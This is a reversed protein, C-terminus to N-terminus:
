GALVLHAKDFAHWTCAGRARRQGLALAALWGFGAGFAWLGDGELLQPLTISAPGRLLDQQAPHHVRHVLSKLQGWIPLQFQGLQEVAEAM